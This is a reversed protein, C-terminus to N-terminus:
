RARQARGRDHVQCIDQSIFVIMFFSIRPAQLTFPVPHVNTLFLHLCAAVDSILALCSSETLIYRLHSPPSRILNM